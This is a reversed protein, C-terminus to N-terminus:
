QKKKRREAKYNMSGQHPSVPSRTYKIMMETSRYLFLLKSFLKQELIFNKNERVVYISKLLRLIKEVNPLQEFMIRM